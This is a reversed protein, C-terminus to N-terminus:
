LPDSTSPLQQPHQPLDHGLGEYDKNLVAISWGQLVPDEDCCLALWFRMGSVIHPFVVQLCGSPNELQIDEKQIGELALSGEEILGFFVHKTIAIRHVIGHAIGILAFSLLSQWGEEPPQQRADAIELEGGRIVVTEPRNKDVVKEKGDDKQALEGQSYHYWGFMSQIVHPEVFDRPCLKSGASRVELIAYSAPRLLLRM